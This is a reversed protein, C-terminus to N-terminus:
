HGNGWGVLDNRQDGLVVGGDLLAQAFEIGSCGLSMTLQEDFQAVLEHTV